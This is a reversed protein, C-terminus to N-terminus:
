LGYQRREAEDTLGVSLVLGVAIFVAMLASGGYSLFPLPVGTVPLLGMSMGICEFVQFWLWGALAATMVKGQRDKSKIAIAIMRWIMLSFLSLVVVGGIFGWEESFVSFIFDTHPEPLFRLKSQTGNMFGKGWLSGSGVAIRSQIVNYGAGLPDMEPNIFVLLRQKQYPKLAHWLIPLFSLGIGVLGLLHRKRSGGAVLAAFTMVLYVFSSGLDPQSLILFVSAGALLWVKLFDSLSNLENYAMFRAMALALAIKGLESPQLRISGLSFWSQAGKAMTGMILILLLSIILASYLYYGWKLMTKYGIKIVVGSALLSLGGWLLQRRALGLGSRNVGSAASYISAVGILTLLIVSLVLPIDFCKLKESLTTREESM